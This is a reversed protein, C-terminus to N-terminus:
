EVRVDVRVRIREGPDFGTRTVHTRGGYEYTVEYQDRVPDCVTVSARQRERQAQDYIERGAMGGVATGIASTAYRASGGGVKSGIVAGIVSGVVTAMARGGNNGAQPGPYRPDYYGDNYGDSSGYGDAYGDNRTVCHQGNPYGYDAVSVPVVRVVRAYDYYGDDDGPRDQAFTSGAFVCLALALISASRIKM